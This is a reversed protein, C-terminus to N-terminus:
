FNATESSSLDPCSTVDKALSPAARRFSKRACGTYVEATSAAIATWGYQRIIKRRARQALRAAIAPEALLRCIAKALASASGPHVLLGDANHRITEALGGTRAAVVPSGAAMAELAVLGFPEYLSPFVSVAAQAYLRWKAAGDVFGAFQVAAGSLRALAELEGQMPGAGAIILRAQPFCALVAPMAALLVHIGKEHVLRGITFLIPGTPASSTDPTVATAIAPDAAACVDTTGSYDTGGGATTAAEVDVGNPIM